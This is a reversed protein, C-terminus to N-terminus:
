MAELRFQSAILVRELGSLVFVRAIELRFQFQVDSECWEARLKMALM